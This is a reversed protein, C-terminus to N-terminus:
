RRANKEAYMAQDAEALAQMPTVSGGFIAAGVSASVQLEGLNPIVLPATFSQRLREALCEATDLTVPEALVVAFEDGGLRAVTDTERMRGNLREAFARLVHDGCIHGHQDNISKFNNLDLLLLAGYVNARVCRRAAADVLEEFLARNALGTLSDHLAREQHRLRTTRERGFLVMVGIVGALASAAAGPSSGAGVAIVLGIPTLLVDVSTTLLTERACVHWPQGLGQRATSIVADLVFQAAFAAVYVPWQEWTADGPAGVALVLVPAVCYWSDAPIGFWWELSRKRLASGAFESLAVVAPVVNLPLVFLMLVFAPQSISASWDGSLPLTVANASAYAIVAVGAVMPELRHGAPVLVCIATAAIVFLASWAIDHARRQSRVGREAVERSGQPVPEAATSPANM